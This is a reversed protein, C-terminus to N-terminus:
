FLEDTEELLNLAKDKAILNLLQYPDGEPLEAAIVADLTETFLEVDMMRYAYYRAYFYQSLLFSNGSVAFAKAFNEASAEPDGGMMPPKFAHLTGITVYPMGEFYTGDLEAVRDLLASVKPIDRMVSTRDLHLSIYQAWNIAAWVAAPVHELEISPLAAEFDDFPVGRDAPMDTDLVLAMYAHETGKRYLISAYDPDDDEIFAFAYSFYLMSTNLLLDVVEPETRIMGELLFLNAPAADRFTQIDDSMYAAERANDLMPVMVYRVSYKSPSCGAVFLCLSAVYFAALCVTSLKGRPSGAALPVNIHDWALGSGARNFQKNRM